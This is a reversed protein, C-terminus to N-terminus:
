LVHTCMYKYLWTVREFHMNMYFKASVSLCVQLNLIIKMIHICFCSHRTVQSFNGPCLFSSTHELMGITGAIEQGWKGFQSDHSEGGRSQWFTTAMSSTGAVSPHQVWTEVLMRHSLPYHKIEWRGNLFVFSQKRSCPLRNRKSGKLQVLLPFLLVM